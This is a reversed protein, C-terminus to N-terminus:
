HGGCGAGDNVATLVGGAASVSRSYCTGASDTYFYKETSSQGQPGLFNFSSDFQLTDQPAASRSLFTFAIPHNGVSQLEGRILQQKISTTQSFTGDPNQVLAFDLLLPYDAHVFTNEEPGGGHRSTSSSVTTNQSTNQIDPLQTASSANVDFTQVSSFDINQQIDTQIKGHSTKVFGGVHFSRSSTVTVTGTVTGDAATALKEDVVPNPTGITNDTVEGTVRSSAADLYLLLAGATAFFNGNNFVNFGIKHTAGDALTGAFPTLDVRYPTFNLTEVGPIPRWLYPDIGGTYIWPYVPAVGAPTGDISLEVERFATSGCTELQRTVDNPVCTYWFEDAIQSQAIVDLYAREINSPPVFSLSNQDSPTNLYVSGGNPGASMPLVIDASRPASQHPALPYFQLSGSASLISTYTKNVTNGLYIGGPQRVAFLSSYDTVDSEVHWSRTITAQPESTTGFYVNVGGIWVNGTRDFQRGAPVTIDAQFVVKAWPGPCDAPPTYTFPNVNFNNDFMYDSFLQVTCPQTAPRAVPPDATVTNPSGIQPVSPVTRIQASSCVGFSIVVFTALLQSIRSM